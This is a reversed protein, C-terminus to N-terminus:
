SALRKQFREEVSEWVGLTKHKASLPLGLYSTPLSGVTCGLESALEEMNDVPGIPIIESNNLNMRLGLMAEFWM